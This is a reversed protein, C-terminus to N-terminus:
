PTRTPHDITESAYLRSPLNPGASQRRSADTLKCIKPLKQPALGAMDSDIEAVRSLTVALM